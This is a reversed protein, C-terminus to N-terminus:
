TRTPRPIRPTGSIRPALAEREWGREEVWRRALVILVLMNYPLDFYALSLFAGGVGFAVLSAQCMSGLDATWASAPELRGHRRLWGASRWVLAWLLLFLALGVFGHEGLVQFYISHAAHIDNPNPAYRAFVDTEYIAFGGGFFRDKALNWAMWWANIRGMASADQEYNTITSMRTDWQTPMFSLLAWAALATLLGVWLKNRGRWWVMVAMAVIALLAGRSQTGLAAAASLLMLLTLGHKIWRSRAQMQVFRMLPITVVLALAIENNGEIFGDPPGLVQFAGGHVITFIGGKFGYVGISIVLIWALYMLHKRSHLVTLAVLIMFDIKIVKEWMELSSDPHFSFPLTVCIWLMFVVLTISEPAVTPRIRDRTLLMGVLTAIAVAAAVPMNAAAYASRHPNMISIITWGMIGLWPHVLAAIVSAAVFSLVLTDRM